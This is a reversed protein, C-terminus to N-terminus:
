LPDSNPSEMLTNGAVLVREGLPQSPQPLVVEAWEGQWGVLTARLWGPAADNRRPTGSLGMVAREDVFLQSRYEKGPNHPDRVDLYVLYEQRFMGPEIRCHIYCLPFEDTKKAKKEKSRAM